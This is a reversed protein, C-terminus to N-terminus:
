LPRTPLEKLAKEAALRESHREPLRARAIAVAEELLAKAEGPRGQASLVGGLATLIPVLNIHGAPLTRREIALARRLIPEAASPGDLRARVAAIHVLDEAVDPHNEDGFTKEHIKLAREAVALAERPKGEALLLRSSYRLPACLGPHEPGLLREGSLISRALLEHARKYDGMALYLEGLEGMGYVDREPGYM